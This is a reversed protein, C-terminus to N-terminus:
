RPGRRGTGGGAAGREHTGRDPAMGAPRRGGTVDAAKGGSGPTGVLVDSGGEIRIGYGQVTGDAMQGATEDTVLGRFVLHSKGNSFLVNGRVCVTYVKGNDRPDGAPEITLTPDAYAAPDAGLFHHDELVYVPGAPLEPVACAYRAGGAPSFGANPLVDSGWFVPKPGTGYAEYTIPRGAAGSSSAALRERWQGGRAIFSPV